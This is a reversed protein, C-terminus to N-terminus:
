HIYWTSGSCSGVRVMPVPEVHHDKMYHHLTGHEIWPSVFSPWGNEDLVFGLLPLINLHSLKAWIKLEKAVVQSLPYLNINGSADSGTV